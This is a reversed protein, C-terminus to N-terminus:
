KLLGIARSLKNEIKIISVLTNEDLKTGEISIIVGYSDDAKGFTDGAEKIMNMFIKSLDLYVLVNDSTRDDASILAPEGNMDSPIVSKLTNKIKNRNVTKMDMVMASPDFEGKVDSKYEGSPLHMVALVPEKVSGDNQVGFGFKRGATLANLYRLVVESNQNNKAIEELFKMDTQFVIKHTTGTLAHIKGVIEQISVKISDVPKKRGTNAGNIELAKASSYGESGVIISKPTLKKEAEKAPKGHQVGTNPEGWGANSQGIEKETGEEGSAGTQIDKKVEIKEDKKAM